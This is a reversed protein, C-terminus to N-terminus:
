VVMDDPPNLEAGTRTSFTDAAASLKQTEEEVRAGIDEPFVYGLKTAEARYYETDIVKRDLMNDLEALKAARDIPVADGITARADTDAFVTQEYAPYWGNLLDYFMQDHIDVILENKEGAKALMPGMQLALAIGSQAITVDVSGIAIDPTSSAEKLWRWMLGMHDQYPGVSGVGNVRTFKKGAGHEVVLGPGLMWPMEDGNEDIPADADTAYMGLGELALALEEDSISQNIAGMLREFGRIESSGFPNQPEHFNKVHYVPLSTIAPPLETVPRIIKVPRADPGGWKDTKFLGEEVTVTNTGDPKPVKRYTLRKILTDAGVRIQEIIHCGIVRDVDDDDTIPFYSAPDIDNISIRRGNPKTPDATVHWIWDGRILGYRKAGAFKSRFRERRFLDDFAIRAALQADGAVTGMRPQISIGFGPATYRNTTDVITRATPIYIPKDETGRWTLKFSDPVNWYIREYTEYSLIRQQDLEGPIWSPKTGFLSSATSYPTLPATM